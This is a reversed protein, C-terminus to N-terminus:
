LDILKIEALYSRTIQNIVGLKRAGRGYRLYIRESTPNNCNLHEGTAELIDLLSIDLSSRTLEYDTPSANERINGERPQILGGSKLRSLLGSLTSTSLNYRSPTCIREGGAIDHLVALATQTLPTLM